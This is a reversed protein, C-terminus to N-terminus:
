QYCAAAPLRLVVETGAGKRSWVQLRGGAATSSGLMARLGASPVGAQAPPEFGVGDDQVVLTFARAGFHMKVEIQDAKAHSVANRVAERTVRYLEDRVLPRIDHPTGFVVFSYAPGAVADSGQGVLEQGLAGVARVLNIDGDPVLGLQKLSLNWELLAVDSRTLVQDLMRAAEAPRDPLMSRTAQLSFLTGQFGQLLTDHLARSGQLRERLEAELRRRYSRTLRSNRWALWVLACIAPLAITLLWLTMM